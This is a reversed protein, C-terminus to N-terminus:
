ELAEGAKILSSNGVVNLILSAVGGIVSVITKSKQNKDINPSDPDSPVIAITASIAALAISANKLKGARKLYFSATGNSESLNSYRLDESSVSSVSYLKTIRLKSNGYLRELTSDPVEELLVVEEGNHSYYGVTDGKIIAPFTKSSMSNTIELNKIAKELDDVVLDASNDKPNNLYVLVKRGSIEIRNIALPYQGVKKRENLPQKKNDILEYVWRYEGFNYARGLILEDGVSISAGNKTKYTNVNGSWNTTKLDNYSLIDRNNVQGFANNIPLLSIFLLLSKYNLM